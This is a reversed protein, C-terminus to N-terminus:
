GPIEENIILTRAGAVGLGDGSLTFVQVTARASRFRMMDVTSSLVLTTVGDESKESFSPTVGDLPGSLASSVVGGGMYSAVGVLKEGNSGSAYVRMEWSLRKRLTEPWIFRLWAERTYSQEQGFFGVGDAALASSGLNEIVNWRFSFDIQACLLVKNAEREESLIDGWKKEATGWITKVAWAEPPRDKVILIFLGVLVGAAVLILGIVGFSIATIGFASINLVSFASSVVAMSYFAWQVGYGLEAKDDGDGGAKLM